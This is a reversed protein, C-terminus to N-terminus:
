NFVSSHLSESLLFYDLRSMQLPKSHKRWSYRRLLPNNERFPDILNFDQKIELIKNHAKKNNETKYNYNDLNYDQVVNYDGCLIFPNNSNIVQAKSMINDFFIPSDNNPGYLNILTFRHNEVTIDIIIFNGEPDSLHNHITFDLNKKFLIAVGRKNSTGSSFICKNNGWQTQIFKETQQTSHVDQLCYIHCNKAKLYDFVDVRKEMSCLGQTNVSLIKVEM